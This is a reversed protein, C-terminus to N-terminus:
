HDAARCNGAAAAPRAGPAAIEHLADSAKCCTRCQRVPVTEALTMAAATVTDRSNKGIHLRYEGQPLEWQANEENYVANDALDITLTTECSEGAALVPTKAFAVLSQAVSGPVSLYAQVVERGPVKGTNMVQVRATLTKSNLAVDTM